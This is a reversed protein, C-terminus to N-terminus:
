QVSRGGLVCASGVDFAPLWDLHFASSMLSTELIHVILMFCGFISLLFARVVSSAFGMKVLSLLFCDWQCRELQFSHWKWNLLSLPQLFTWSSCWKTFCNISKDRYRFLCLVWVLCEWGHKVQYKNEALRSCRESKAFMPNLWDIRTYIIDLGFKQFMTFNKYM